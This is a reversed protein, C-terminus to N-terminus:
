EQKPFPIPIISHLLRLRVELIEELYNAMWLKSWLINCTQIPLRNICLKTSIPSNLAQIVLPTPLIFSHVAVPDFRRDLNLNRKVLAHQMWALFRKVGSIKMM